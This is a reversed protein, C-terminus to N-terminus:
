CDVQRRLTTLVQHGVTCRLDCRASPLNVQRSGFVHVSFSKKQVHQKIVCSQALKMLVEALAVPRLKRPCPQLLHEGPEPKKPNCDPPAMTAATWLPAISHPVVGQAWM